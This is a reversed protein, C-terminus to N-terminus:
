GEDALGSFDIESKKGGHRQGHSGTAVPPVVTDILPITDL